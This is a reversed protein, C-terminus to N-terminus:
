AGFCADALVGETIALGTPSAMRHGGVSTGPNTAIAACGKLVNDGPQEPFTTGPAGGDALAPSASVAMFAAALLVSAIRSKM